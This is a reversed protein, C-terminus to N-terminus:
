YPRTPESIHILSLIMPAYYYPERTAQIFYPHVALLAAWILGARPSLLCRGAQGAAFISLGAWFVDPLRFTFYTLPLHFTDLFLKIMAVPLPFQGTFGTLEIWHTVIYGSSPAQQCISFFLITDARLASTGLWLMRLVTGSLVILSLLVHWSQIKGYKMFSLGSRKFM